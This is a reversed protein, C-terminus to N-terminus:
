EDLMVRKVKCDNHIGIIYEPPNIDAVDFAIGLGLDSKYIEEHSNIMPILMRNLMHSAVQLFLTKNVSM